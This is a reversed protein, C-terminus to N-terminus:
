RISSNAASRRPPLGRAAADDQGVQTRPRAHRGDALALNSVVIAKVGVAPSTMAVRM